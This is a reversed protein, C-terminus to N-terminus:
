IWSLDSDQDHVVIGIDQGAGHTQQFLRAVGDILCGTAFFCQLHDPVVAGVQDQKIAVQRADIADLDAAPDFM